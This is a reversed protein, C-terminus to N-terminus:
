MCSNDPHTRDWQIMCFWRDLSVSRALPKHKILNSRVDKDM